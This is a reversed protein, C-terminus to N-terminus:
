GAAEAAAKLRALTDAMGAELQGQRDRILTREVFAILAPAKISEFSETVKTPGDGEFRYTWRTSPADRYITEFSFERPRDATLVRAVTTWRALGRRNHGKFTSGAKGPEDVWECRVCEPSWEGMRTVDAVLDYVVSPPADIEASVSATTPLAM